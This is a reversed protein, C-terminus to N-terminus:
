SAGDEGVQTTRHSWESASAEDATCLTSPLHWGLERVSDLSGRRASCLGAVPQPAFPDLQGRYRHLAWGYMFRWRQAPSGSHEDNEWMVERALQSAINLRDSLSDALWDPDIDDVDYEEFEEDWHPNLDKLDVGRVRAVVGLACANEGDDVVIEHLEREQPPMAELGVILDRLLAQGRRGRMANTVQARWRGLELHDIEDAEIYGHRSM